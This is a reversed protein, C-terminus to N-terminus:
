DERKSCLIRWAPAQINHVKDSYIQIMHFAFLASRCTLAMVESTHASCCRLAMLESTDDIAMTPANDEVYNMFSISFIHIRSFARRNFQSHLNYIVVLLICSSQNIYKYDARCTAPSTKAWWWSCKVTNVAESITWRYQQRSTDHILHFM